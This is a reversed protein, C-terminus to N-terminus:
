NRQYSSQVALLHKDAAVVVVAPIAKDKYLLTPIWYGSKDKRDKCSTDGALLEATTSSANVVTSGMFDHSHSAGPQGPFIIPDDPLRHSLLCFVRFTGLRPNSAAIAKLAQTEEVPFDPPTRQDVVAVKWAVFMMLIILIIAIFIGFRNQM